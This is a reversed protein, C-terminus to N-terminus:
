WDTNNPQSGDSKPVAIFDTEKPKPLTPKEGLERYVIKLDRLFDDDTVLGHKVADKFLKKLPLEHNQILRQIPNEGVPETMYEFFTKM